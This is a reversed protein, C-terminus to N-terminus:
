LDPPEWRNALLLGLNFMANTHGAQAAEEMWRRAEALDLPEQNALSGGLLLM